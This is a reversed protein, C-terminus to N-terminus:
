ASLSVAASVPQWDAGQAGLLDNNLALQQWSGYAQQVSSSSPSGLTSLPNSQPTSSDSNNDGGADVRFHHHGRGHKPSGQVPVPSASNSSQTSQASSSSSPTSPAATPLAALQTQATTQATTQLASSSGSQFAQSLQQLWQQQNQVGSSQYNSFNSSSIGSVSM